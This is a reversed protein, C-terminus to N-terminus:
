VDMHTYDMERMKRMPHKCIHILTYEAPNCLRFPLRTTGIGSSVFLTANSLHYCGKRYKKGKRPLFCSCLLPIYVQGGHTHGSLILDTNSRNIWDAIDPEHSLLIQFPQYRTEALKLDEFGVCADDMGLISIHHKANIYIQNCLVIFGAEEMIDRYVNIAKGGIDHNGFIAIKQINAHLQQFQHIVDQKMDATKEYCDFLDGTFVIIDPHQANITQVVRKMQALSNRKIHTDSFQVIVMQSIDESYLQVHKQILQYPEIKWMYVLLIVIFFLFLIFM